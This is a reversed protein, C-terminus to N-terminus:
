QPHLGGALQLFSVRTSKSVQVMCLSGNQHAKLYDVVIWKSVM